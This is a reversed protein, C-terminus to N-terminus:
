QNKEKARYEYVITKQGSGDAFPRESVKAFGRKEYFEWSALTNTMLRVSDAGDARAREMFRAVLATGLGKRFDRKSSLAVLELDCSQFDRNDRERAQQFRRPAAVM